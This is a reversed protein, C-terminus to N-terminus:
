PGLVIAPPPRKFGPVRGSFKARAMHHHSPDTSVEFVNVAGQFKVRGVGSSGSDLRDDVGLGKPGSLRFPVRMQLAGIKEVHLVM